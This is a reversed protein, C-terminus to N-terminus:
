PGSSRTQGESSLSRPTTEVIPCYGVHLIFIGSRAASGMDQGVLDRVLCLIVQDISMNVNFGHLTSPTRSRLLGGPDQHALPEGISQAGTVESFIM